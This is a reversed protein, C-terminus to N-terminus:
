HKKPLQYEIMGLEGGDHIAVFGSNIDAINIPNNVGGSHLMAAFNQLEDCPFGAAAGVNGMMCWQILYKVFASCPLPLGIM